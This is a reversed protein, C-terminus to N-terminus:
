PLYGSAPHMRGRASPSRDCTAGKRASARRSAAVFQRCTPVCRARPSDRFCTAVPASRQPLTVFGGAFADGGHGHGGGRGVAIAVLLMVVIALPVGFRSM